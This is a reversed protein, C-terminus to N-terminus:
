LFVLPSVHFRKSLLKLQRINLQRKGNLVESVIGQSGIEALDHQRLNHEKMLYKLNGIPDDNPEKINREEYDKILTGLTDILSEITSNSKEQVQDILRDLFKIANQYDDETHLTSIIKSVTPWHKIAEELEDTERIPALSM